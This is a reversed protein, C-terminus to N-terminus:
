LHVFNIIQLISLTSEYKESYLFVLCVVENQNQLAEVLVKKHSPEVRFLNSFIQTFINNLILAFLSYCM